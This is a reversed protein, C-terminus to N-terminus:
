QLALSGHFRPEVLHPEFSLQDGCPSGVVFEAVAIANCFSEPMFVSRFFAAIFQYGGVDINDGKKPVSGM